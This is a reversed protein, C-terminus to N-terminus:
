FSLKWLVVVSLASSKIGRMVGGYAAFKSNNKQALTANFCLVFLPFNTWGAQQRLMIAKNFPSVGFLVLV